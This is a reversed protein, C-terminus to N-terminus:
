YHKIDSDHISRHIIIKRNSATRCVVPNHCLDPQLPAVASMSISILTVAVTCVHCHKRKVIGCAALSRHLKRPIRRWRVPVPLCIQHPCSSAPADHEVYLSNYCAIRLSFPASHILVAEEAAEAWLFQIVACEAQKKKKEKESLTARKLSM